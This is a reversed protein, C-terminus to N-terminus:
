RSCGTVKLRLKTGAPVIRNRLTSGIAGNAFGYAVAQTATLAEDHAAETPPTRLDAGRARV